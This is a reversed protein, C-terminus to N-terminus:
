TGTRLVYEIDAPLDPEHARFQVMIVGIEEHVVPGCEEEPFSDGHSFLIMGLLKVENGFESALVENVREPAIKKIRFDGENIEARKDLSGFLVRRGKCFRQPSGDLEFFLEGRKM